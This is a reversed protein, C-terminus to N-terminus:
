HFPRYRFVVLHKGAPLRVSKFTGFLLEISVPSGNVSAEWDPDWNDIFSLYGDAPAQVEVSLEDGDYAVVREVGVFQRADDLFAQISAHDIAQSFRLKRGDVMGLLLEKAAPEREGKRLFDNYRQFYWNDMPGVTFPGELVLGQQNVRPVHFSDLNQQAINFERRPSAPWVAFAWTWPGVVWLDLAALAVVTVLAGARLPSGSPLRPVGILLVALVAFSLVGFAISSVEAIAILQERTIQRVSDGAFYMTLLAALAVLGAIAGARFRLNAPIKSLVVLLGAVGAGAMLALVISATAVHKLYVGLATLVGDQFVGGAYYQTWYDDRWHANAYLQWAFAAALIASLIALPRLNGAVRGGPQPATLLSEFHVYASALLWGLIPVLIINMRSWVRLSSIGPVYHWLLAFLYSSKGYTIYTVV